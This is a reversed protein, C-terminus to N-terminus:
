SKRSAPEQSGLTTSWVAGLTLSPQFVFPNGIQAPLWLQLSSAVDFQQLQPVTDSDCWRNIEAEIIEAVTCPLAVETQLVRSRRFHRPRGLLGAGRWLFNQGQSVQFLCASGRQRALQEM